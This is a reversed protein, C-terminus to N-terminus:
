LGSFWLVDSAMKVFGEAFPRFHSFVLSDLSCSPAEQVFNIIFNVFISTSIVFYLSFLQINLAIAFLSFEIVLGEHYSSNVLYLGLIIDLKSFIYNEGKRFYGRMLQYLKENPRVIHMLSHIVVCWTKHGWM